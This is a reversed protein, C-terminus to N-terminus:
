NHHFNLEYKLSLEKACKLVDVLQGKSYNSPDKFVVGDPLGNVSVVTKSAEIEGYPVRERKGAAKGAIFNLCLNLFKWAADWYCIHVCKLGLM